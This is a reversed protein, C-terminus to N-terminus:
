PVGLAANLNDQADKLEPNLRLANKFCTVAGQENGQRYLVAGLNNHAKAYDPRIQIVARFQTEAESYKGKGLLIAGLNNRAEEYDPKLHIAERYHSEAEGTKGKKVLLNALNDHAMWCEPNKTLTVRWLTELDRYNGSQRWTLGALVLILACSSIRGYTVSRESSRNMLWAFAAIPGISALYQFHDAVFSFRMPYLNFFGLAPFLTGAFFLAATLPERGILRRFIWLIASLAMFTLPFLYQTFDGADINWRPYIFILDAPWVLKGLYFWLARGAILFREASSFIWGTGMAGGKNEFQITILGMGVGMCFYPVMRRFTRSDLSGNKMWNLLLIVAPLTSTVTKSLLAATFLLLSTGYWRRGEGEDYKLYAGLSSLYFFGSLLNKRESIWATSEVHVPHFAFIAAALWANKMKLRKLILGILVANLGHLFINVAHYGAPDNGWLKKEIYFSTFVMPYYQVNEGSFWIKQLGGPLTLNPNDTLLLDDDWIYGARMAPGYAVFVLLVLIAAPIWRKWHGGPYKPKNEERM